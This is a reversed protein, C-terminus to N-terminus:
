DPLDATEPLLGMDGLRAIVQRWDQQRVLAATPGIREEIFRALRPSSAIRDMLEEDSLRLLVARQLRAETGQADWRTLAEEVARPLPAETIRKLFELVRVVSIGQQRARELSAPTLRYVFREGAQEWEAVRALQFREYRLRAPISVRFGSRVRPPALTPQPPPDTLDLFAAGSQNLRFAQPPRDSREGELDILGLWVMPRTLLYRILRGEVAEWSDFGSLYAGTEEDRIYWTEYDGAPRQFDPDIEKLAAVFADLDYWSTPSCASLHRLVAQRALVPDNRWAGTDEPHLAPVHFLDNWTPDDRWTEALVCRQDFTDSQLWTTVPEPDLRLPEAEDRVMWGIRSALHRLFTSRGQDQVRLRSSVREGDRGAWDGSPGPRPRQNQVYALLTCADDLLLHGHSVISSPAPVPDLTITPQTAGPASLHKQIEAPIFLAEYAGNPGQEFSQFVFGRYWLGEAPSIPNEWPREREMRGPGMARIEGWERTFIRRPMHGGSALLARLAQGQDDSLQTRAREIAERNAMAEALELAAERQRNTALPIEWFRAIARLRVLYADLLSQRLLPM